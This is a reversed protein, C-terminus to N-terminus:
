EEKLTAIFQSVSLMDADSLLRAVEGMAGKPDNAREGSKFARLQAEVYASQQAALRPYKSDGLGDSGHCSACAPVKTSANGEEFLQRGRPVVAPETAQGPSRKQEGYHNALDVVAADEVTLVIQNMVPNKRQGTKYHL